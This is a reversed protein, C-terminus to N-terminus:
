LKVKFLAYRDNTELIKLRLNMLDVLTEQPKIDTRSLRQKFLDVRILIHTINRRHLEGVLGDLSEFKNALEFLLNNDIILPVDIYYRFNGTNVALLKGDKPVVKNALQNLTYFPIERSLYEDRSVKGSIFPLPDIRKFLGVGYSLNYIFYSSLLIFIVGLNAKSQPFKKQLWTSLQYLGFVSLIVMPSVITIIYRIRIETVFLTVLLTTIVFISLFKNQWRKKTGIFLLLAFVLLLPNLRGDFNQPDDDQGEYFIRIPIALTYPLSEGYMLNRYLLPTMPEPQDINVSDNTKDQISKSFLSKHLPYIPNGTLSYNRIMWPSYVLLAIFSFIAVYKIVNLQNSNEDKRTKLFFYALLLTLVVISLLASYKVSMTLGACIGAIILWRIKSTNELWVLASLLSATFFFLLGLDVYVTVSLKVIVPLTLFMLGGLLGWYSGLYRRIYLFILLVIGLAFAFHIYKAVIDADMAVPLIYLLDILQPFYSYDNEPLDVMVGETLWIKPLSLHHTQADRSTPPVTAMILISIIVFTYSLSFLYKNIKNM